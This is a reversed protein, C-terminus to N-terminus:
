STDVLLNEACDYPCIAEDYKEEDCSIDAIYTGHSSNTFVLMDGSQAGTLLDRLGAVL